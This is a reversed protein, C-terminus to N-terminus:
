SHSGPSEHALRARSALLRAITEVLALMDEPKRLFADAGAGRAEAEDISASLMLVPTRERHPLARAQRVLELGSTGPLENDLLLLDYRAYSELKRLATMGNVCADVRWGELKLTEKVAEMVSRNDEAYLITVVRAAKLRGARGAGGSKLGAGRAEGQLPEAGIISRKRRVVPSRVMLLRRHRGKLMAILSHHHKFGLLQAARSVVGKAERLALEIVHEEYRKVEERLSFGEWSPVSIEETGLRVKGVQLNTEAEAKGISQLREEVIQMVRRACVRLRRLVAADQSKELFEDARRYSECLEVLELQEGLEEILTLAAKGAEESDGPQEGVEMARGLTAQAREVEGLRVLVRGYTTSAEALLGTQGDHEEELAKSLQCRYRVRQNHSVTPDAIRDILQATLNM